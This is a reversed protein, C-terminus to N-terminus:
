PRRRRAALLLRPTGALVRPAQQAETLIVEAGEAGLEEALEGAAATIGAYVARQRALWDPTEERVELEFGAETLLARHDVHEPEWTTLVFRGGPVLIRHVEALAAPKDQVMWLADISMVADASAAPLGTGTFSGVVFRAGARGLERSRRAADAVAVPVVDVGVLRARHERAVLLGPGGRGCGLDVLTGGPALGVLEGVRALDARTVFGFPDIEEPYDEGYAERYIRRLTGSRAQAAYFRAYRDEAVQPEAIGAPTGATGTTATM